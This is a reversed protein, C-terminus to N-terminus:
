KYSDEILSIQETHQAKLTEQLSKLHLNELELKKM